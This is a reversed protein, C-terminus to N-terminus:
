TGSSEYEKKCDCKTTFCLQTYFLDNRLRKELGIEQSPISFFSFRVDTM